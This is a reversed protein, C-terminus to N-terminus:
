CSLSPTVSVTFFHTTALPPSFCFLSVLLYLSWNCFLHTMPTFHITHSVCYSHLGKTYHCLTALSIKTVKFHLSICFWQTTLCPSVCHQLDIISWFCVYKYFFLDSKHNYLHHPHPIPHLFDSLTLSGKILYILLLSAIYLMIFIFFAAM